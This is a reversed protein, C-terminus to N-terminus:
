SKVAKITDKNLGQYPSTKDDVIVLTYIYHIFMSVFYGVGLYMAIEIINSMM